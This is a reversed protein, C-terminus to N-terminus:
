HGASVAILLWFAKRATWRKSGARGRFRVDTRRCACSGRGASRGTASCGQMARLMASSSLLRIHRGSFFEIAQFRFVPLARLPRLSRQWSLAPRVSDQHVPRRYPGPSAVTDPVFSLTDFRQVDNAVCMAKCRDDEWSREAGRRTV